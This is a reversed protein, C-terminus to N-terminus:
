KKIITVRATDELGYNGTQIIKDNATFVPETIEIKGQSEIGKKIPVKVATSDNILKM